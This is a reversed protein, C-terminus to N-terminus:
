IKRKKVFQGGKGRIRVAGSGYAEVRFEKDKTEFYVYNEKKVVKVQEKEQGFAKEAYTAAATELAAYVDATIGSYDVQLLKALRKSADTKFRDYAEFFAASVANGINAQMNAPGFVPYPIGGSDSTFKASANGDEILRWFPATNDDLFGIRMEITDTYLGIYRDTIDEGSAMADEDSMENFDESTINEVKIIQNGERDVGYIKERWFYSRMDSNQTKGFGGEERAKKVADGWEDLEGLPTFDVSVTITKAGEDFTLTVLEDIHAVVANLIQNIYSPWNFEKTAATAQIVTTTVYGNLFDKIYRKAEVFAAKEVASNQEAKELVFAADAIYEYVDEARTSLNNALIAVEALIDQESYHVKTGKGHIIRVPM